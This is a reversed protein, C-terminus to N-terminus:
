ARRRAWALLGLGLMLSWVTAPEPVAAVFAEGLLAHAAATPHVGDWFLYNDPNACVTKASSNFCADTTNFGQGGLLAAQEAMFAATDFSQIQAGALSASLTALGTTLLQNYEFSRQAAAAKYGPTGVEAATSAPTLGLNPMLPVFFHRAGLQYLGKIDNLLNTSATTSTSGSLMNAGAFFDNPGAWVVYLADADASAGGLADAFMGVQGQVGTGYLKAGGYNGLGTQAGGYAFDTLPLGLKSAMTEVAVPGNSFRGDVYPAGPQGTGTVSETLAFLNGTDSLSDGFVVLESYALAPGSLVTTLLIGTLATRYKVAIGKQNTLSIVPM